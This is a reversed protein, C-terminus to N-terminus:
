RVLMTEMRIISITLCLARYFQKYSASFLFYEIMIWLKYNM